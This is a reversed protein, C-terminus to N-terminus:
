YLSAFNMRRTSRRRQLRRWRPKPDGRLLHETTLIAAADLNGPELVLARQAEKIAGEHDKLALLLASKLAVANASANDRDAIGGILGLADHPASLLLIQALRLRSPEDSPDYEIIAKLIPALAPWNRKQEEIQALGRLAPVFDKKYKLANRLEIQAKVLDGSSLYEQGKTLYKQAREEPTGCSTLQLSAFVLGLRMLRSAFLPRFM